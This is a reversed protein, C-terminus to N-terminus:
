QEKLKNNVASLAMDIRQETIDIRPPDLNLAIIADTLPTEVMQNLFWRFQGKLVTKDFARNTREDALLQILEERGLKTIDRQPSM